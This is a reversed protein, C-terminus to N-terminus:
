DLLEELVIGIKEATKKFTDFEERTLITFRDAYDDAFKIRVPGRDDCTHNLYQLIM